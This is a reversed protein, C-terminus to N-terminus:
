ANKNKSDLLHNLQAIQGEAWSYRRMYEGNYNIGAEKEGDLIRYLDCDIMETKIYKKRDHTGIIYGIGMENLAEVLRKFTVRFLTQTKIDNSREPWLYSIAEGTTIGNIGRDVLLALLEEVKSRGFYICKGDVKLVFDPITEVEIKAKRQVIPAFAAAKDLEKQVERVSYPKLIYGIADVSFADLAYQTHATVFIIRIDPRLEKLKKAMSIGQRRRMEIDLFAVDVEHFKAWELADEEQLFLKLDSVGECRELTLKFNDLAPQEDDVYLINM